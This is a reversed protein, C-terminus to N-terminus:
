LLTGVNWILRINIIGYYDFVDHQTYYVCYHINKTNPNLGNYHTYGHNYLEPIYETTNHADCILTASGPPDHFVRFYECITCPSDQSLKGFLKSKSIM